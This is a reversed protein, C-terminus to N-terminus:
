VSCAVLAFLCSSKFVQILGADLDTMSASSSTVSVNAEASSAVDGSDTTTNEESLFSEKLLSLSDGRPEKIRWFRMKRAINEPMVCVSTWSVSIILNVISDVFMLTVGPWLLWGRVQVIYRKQLPQVLFSEYTSRHRRGDLAVSDIWPKSCSSWASGLIACCWVIPFM